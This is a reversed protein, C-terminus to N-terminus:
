VGFIAYFHSLRKRWNGAYNTFAASLLPQRKGVGHDLFPGTTRVLSAFDEVHGEGPRSARAPRSVSTKYAASYAAATCFLAPIAEFLPSPPRVASAHM